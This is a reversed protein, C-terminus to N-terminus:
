YKYTKDDFGTISYGSSRFLFLTYLDINNRFNKASDDQSIIYLEEIQERNM